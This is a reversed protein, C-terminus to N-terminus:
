KMHKNVIVDIGYYSNVAEDLWYTTGAGYDSLGFHNHVEPVMVSDRGEAKAQRILSDARDFVRAFNRYDPLDRLITQTTFLCYAAFLLVLGWVVAKRYPPSPIKATDLGMRASLHSGTILGVISLFVAALFTPIVLTRDPPSASMGYASPVFCAFLLLLACIVTFLISKWYSHQLMHTIRNFSTRHYPAEATPKILLGALSAGLLLVLIHLIRMPSYVLDISYKWLSQASISLLSLLDPPPPFFEQRIKNGPALVIVLMALISGLLGVLLAPLYTKQWKPPNEIFTLVLLLFYASTQFVVYTEGFGGAILSLFGIGLLWAPTIPKGASLRQYLMATLFTALLLPLIVSRMGQGWYLSQNLLPTTEFTTILVLASLLVALSIRKIVSGAPLFHRYATVLGIMWILIVTGTIFPMVGPGLYGIVSDFFSATFRGSWNIYWDWTAGFIGKSVALTASSFDDAVFRSCSGLVAYATLPVLSILSISFVPQRILWDLLKGLVFFLNLYIVGFLSSVVAIQILPTRVSLPHGSIQVALVPEILLYTFLASLLFALVARDKKYQFITIFAPM